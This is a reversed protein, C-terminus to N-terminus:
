CGMHIYRVATLGNIGLSWCGSYLKPWCGMYLQFGAAWRGSVALLGNIGIPWCGLNPKRGAEGCIGPPWRVMKVQCGGACVYGTALLGFIAQPWYDMYVQRGAVWKFRPYLLLGFIAQPGFVGPPWCGLWLKRGAAWKQRTALLEFKDPSQCGVIPQQWCDM